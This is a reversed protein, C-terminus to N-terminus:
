PSPIPNLGVIYLLIGLIQDVESILYERTDIALETGILRHFRWSAGNTVLGYITDINRKTTQNFRQAAVMEAACQGQVGPINENKAEVIALIPCSPVYSLQPGRGVMFDIVGTLGNDQDVTFEVGSLLYITQWSRAWMEGLVPAILWESRAKETNVNLALPGLRTLSSQLMEGPDVPSVKSFLSERTSITLGFSATATALTFHRFAM